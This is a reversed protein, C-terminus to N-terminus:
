AFIELAPKGYDTIPVPRHDPTFLHKAPDIGLAHHITAHLDPVSMKRKTVERGLEDTEGVVTGGRVGGGFM